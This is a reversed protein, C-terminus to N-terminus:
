RGLREREVVLRRTLMGYVDDAIKQSSPLHRSAQRAARENEEIVTRRVTKLLEEHQVHHRVRRTAAEGGQAHPARRMAMSPEDFRWETARARALIRREGTFAFSSTRMTRSAALRQELTWLRSAHAATFTEVRSTRTVYVDTATVRTHRDLAITPPSSALTQRHDHFSRGPAAIKGTASAKTQHERVEHATRLHLL